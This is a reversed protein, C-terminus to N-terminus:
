GPPKMPDAADLQYRQVRITLMGAQLTVIGEAAVRKKILPRLQEGLADNVVRYTKEDYGAIDVASIAGNQEWGAALIIGRITTLNQKTMRGGTAVKRGIKQGLSQFCCAGTCRDPTPDDQCLNCRWRHTENIERQGKVSGDLGSLAQIILGAIFTGLGDNM